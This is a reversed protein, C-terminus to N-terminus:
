SSIIYRNVAIPNVGLPLIVNLCKCVFLVCFVIFCFVCFLVYLVILTCLCLVSFVYNVFNFLLMCFLCSYICHYFIFGFSYSLIHYVFFGYLFCVEYSRLGKSYKVVSTSVESVTM